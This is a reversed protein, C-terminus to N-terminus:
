PTATLPLRAKVLYGGEPRRGAHLEGGYIGVRERIGALGQGSGGGTGNGSGDDVVELELEDPRYRVVVRAHAPGAHKLTNTLAEQIIRYASVDIGPPVEVPQGEVCVDVPLGTSTLQAALEDILRLGPQPTLTPDEDTQRLMTLLRRMEILAQEGAHEIVDFAERADAPTADLVRRGGRAQLVVVSIAHSVVDHLERAIRAREAIVAARAQEERDAQAAAAQNEWHRERETRHRVLRGTVFPGTFYITFFAFDGFGPPQHPDFAALPIAGLVMVACVWFVPGRAYRGASYIGIIFGFLFAGGEGVGHLVTHNLGIVAAGALLLVAPLRRRAALAAAFALAVLVAWPRHKTIEQSLTEEGIFVAGIVGALLYDGYETVLRRVHVPQIYGAVDTAGDSALALRGDCSGSARAIAFRRGPRHAVRGDLAITSV